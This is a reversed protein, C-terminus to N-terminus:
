DNCVKDKDHPIVSMSKIMHNFPGDSMMPYCILISSPLAAFVGDASFRGMRGEQLLGAEDKPRMPALLKRKMTKMTVPQHNWRRKRRLRHHRRGHDINTKRKSRDLWRFLSSRWLNADSDAHWQIGRYTITTTTKIYIFQIIM